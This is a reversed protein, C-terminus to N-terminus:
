KSPPVVKNFALEMAKGINASLSEIGENEIVSDMIDGATEHTLKKDEWKLAVYFMTRLDKMSFNEMDMNTVPKGLLEELEVMQNIGYKLNRAKDAQIMVTKAM